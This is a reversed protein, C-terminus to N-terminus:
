RTMGKTPEGRFHSDGSASPLLAGALIRTEVEDMTEVLDEYRIFTGVGVVAGVAATIRSPRPAGRAV